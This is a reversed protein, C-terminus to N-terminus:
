VSQSAHALIIWCGATFHVEEGIVHKSFVPRVTKILQAQSEKSLQQFVSGIPGFTTFMYELDRLPFSCPIDARLIDIRRWGSDSLIVKTRDPDSLAFRGPGNPERTPLDPLFPAAAREAERMFANDAPGRWVAFCAKASPKAARRLNTFARVPDDFFMVGFRSVLLDFSAEEFPYVQADAQIFSANIKEREGRARAAEIMLSSFDVGVCAPGSDLHRAYAITVAGTGCGVDLVRNGKTPPCAALIADVVPQYMCDLLARGEVWARGGEGNWIEAQEQNVDARRAPQMM